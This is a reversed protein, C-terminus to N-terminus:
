LRQYRRHTTIIESITMNTTILYQLLIYKVQQVVTVMVVTQGQQVVLVVKTQQVVQVVLVELVVMQKYLEM